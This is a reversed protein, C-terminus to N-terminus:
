ENSSGGNSTDWEQQALTDFAGQQSVGMSQMFGNSKQPMPGGKEKAMKLAAMSATEVCFVAFFGMTVETPPFVFLTSYLWVVFALYGVTSVYMVALIVASGVGSHRKYHAAM